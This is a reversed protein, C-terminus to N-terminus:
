KRFRPQGELPREDAVVKGKECRRDRVGRLDELCTVLVQGDQQFLETLHLEHLSEVVLGDVEGALGLLLDTSVQPVAPLSHGHIVEFVAHTLAEFHRQLPEPGPRPPPSPSSRAPLRAAHRHGHRPSPSQADRAAWSRKM